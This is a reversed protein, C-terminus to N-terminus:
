QSTIQMVSGDNPNMDEPGILGDGDPDPGNGPTSDEDFQDTAIVEAINDFDVGDGPAEVTVDFTLDVTTGVPVDIDTWTIVSGAASGGSSINIINSFGNPVNDEVAVGTADSDGDNTLQITFTIVDGVNPEDNSVFKILSVDVVQPEVPEDDADDEDDPDVGPDNPNDDESGIL